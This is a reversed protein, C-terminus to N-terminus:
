SSNHPYVQYIIIASFLKSPDEIGVGTGESKWGQGEQIAETFEALM